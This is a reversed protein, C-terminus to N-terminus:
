GTVPVARFVQTFEDASVSGCTMNLPRRREAHPLTLCRKPTRTSLRVTPQTGGTLTEAQWKENTLNNVAKDACWNLTVGAATPMHGLCRGTLKSVVLVSNEDLRRFEFRQAESDADCPAALLGVALFSAGEPQLCTGARDSRLQHYVRDEVAQSTTACAMVTAATVCAALVSRTMRSM